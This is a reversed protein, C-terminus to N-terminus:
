HTVMLTQTFIQRSLINNLQEIQDSRWIPIQTQSLIFETQVTSNEQNTKTNLYFQFWNENIETDPEQYSNILKFNGKVTYSIKFNTNVNYSQETSYFKISSLFIDPVYLKIM